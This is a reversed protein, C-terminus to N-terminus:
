DVGAHMRRLRLHAAHLKGSLPETAALAADAAAELAPDDRGTRETHERAAWSADNMAEHLPRYEAEMAQIEDYLVDAASRAPRTKPVRPM